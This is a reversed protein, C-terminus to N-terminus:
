ASVAYLKIPVPLIANKETLTAITTNVIVSFYFFSNKEGGSFM